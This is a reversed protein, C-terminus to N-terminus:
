EQAALENEPHVLNFCHFQVLSRHLDSVTADPPLSLSACQGSPLYVDIRM